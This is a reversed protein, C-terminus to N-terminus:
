FNSTLVVVFQKTSQKKLAKQKASYRATKIQAWADEIDILVDDGLSIDYRKGNEFIRLMVPYEHDPENTAVFTQMTGQYEDNENKCEFVNWMIKDGLHTTSSGSIHSFFESTLVVAAYKM